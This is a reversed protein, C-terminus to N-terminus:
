IAKSSQLQERRQKFFRSLKKRSNAVNTKAAHVPGPRHRRSEQKGQRQYVSLVPAAGLRGEPAAAEPENAAPLEARDTGSRGRDGPRGTDDPLADRLQLG